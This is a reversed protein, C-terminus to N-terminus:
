HTDLSSFIMHVMLLDNYFGKVFLMHYLPGSVGISYSATNIHLVHLLLSLKVM